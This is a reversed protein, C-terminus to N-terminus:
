LSDFKDSSVSNILAALSPISFLWFPSPVKSSNVGISNSIDTITLFSPLPPIFMAITPAPPLYSFSDTEFIL